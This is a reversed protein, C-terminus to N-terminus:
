KEFDSKLCAYMRLDFYRDKWYTYQKLLGEERFGFKVLLASSADNGPMVLGEVRNFGVEVFAFRLLAQVAESMFGQRWYASALEFGIEARHHRAVISPFGCTGVVTSDSKRVMAWRICTGAEHRRRFSEILSSAQEIREFRSTDYYKVVEPDAFLAFVATADAPSLERLILRDTELTPITKLREAQM